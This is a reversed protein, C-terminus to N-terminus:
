FDSRRRKFIYSTKGGEKRESFLEWGEDGLDNLEAELEEALPSIVKYEWQVSVRPTLYVGANVGTDAIDTVQGAVLRAKGTVQAVDDKVLQTMERLNDTAQVINSAIQGKIGSRVAIEVGAAEGADVGSTQHTVKAGCGLLAVFCAVVLVRLGSKMSSM